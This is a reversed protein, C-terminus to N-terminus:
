HYFIRYNRLSNYISGSGCRLLCRNISETQIVLLLGIYMRQYKAFMFYVEGIDDFRLIWEVTGTVADPTGNM